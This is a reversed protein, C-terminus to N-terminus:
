KKDKKHHDADEDGWGGEGAVVGISQLPAQPSSAFFFAVLAKFFRM